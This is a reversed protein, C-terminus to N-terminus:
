YKIGAGGSINLGPWQKLKKRMSTYHAPKFGKAVPRIKYGIALLKTPIHYANDLNSNKIDEPLDEFDSINQNKTDGTNHVWSMYFNKKSGSEQKKMENLYRSHIARAFKRVMKENIESIEEPRVIEYGIKKLQM